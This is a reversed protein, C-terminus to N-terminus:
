NFQIRRKTGSTSGRQDMAWATVAFDKDAFRRTVRWKQVHAKTPKDYEYDVEQPQDDSTNGDIIKLVVKNPRGAITGYSKTTIFGREDTERTYATFIPFPLAGISVNYSGAARGGILREFTAAGVSRPRYSLVAPGDTMVQKGNEKVRVSIQSADIGDAGFDLTYAEGLYMDSPIAPDSLKGTSVAFTAKAIRGDSRRRATISVTQEPSGFAPGALDITGGSSSTQRVTPPEFTLQDIEQDVNGIGSLVVRTSWRQGATVMVRPQGPEVSFPG